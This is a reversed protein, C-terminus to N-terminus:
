WNPPRKELFAQMGEQADDIQSAAAMEDITYPYADAMSRDLQAYLARKGLAKSEASGRTARTLFARAAEELQEDPVVHNVLGWNAATAADISSGTFSLEVARKRGINRAIEVMPVTCFLGAKGGPAAFRASQAAIALDCAAVLQCGAATALAHVRALVVQPVEHILNMLKSCSSLLAQMADTDAGVMDAFDHGSCFVPGAAALVIGRADSAAVEEFAATLEAIHDFSLANRREPRNLTITVQDGDQKTLIHHWEM